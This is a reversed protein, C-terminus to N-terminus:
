REDTLDLGTGAMPALFGDAHAGISTVATGAVAEMGSALTGVGMTDGAMPHRGRASAGTSIAIAPSLTVASCLISLKNM